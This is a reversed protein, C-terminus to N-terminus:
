QAPFRFSFPAISITSGADESAEVTCAGDGVAQFQRGLEGDKIFSHESITVSCMRATFIPGHDAARVKVTATFTGLEGAHIAPVDVEFSSIPEHIPLFLMERGQDGGFPIGCAPSSNSEWTVAGSTSGDLECTSDGGGGGGCAAMMVSIGIARM